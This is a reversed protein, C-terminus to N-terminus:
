EEIFGGSQHSWLKAYAGKKKLLQQHSGDEVIKGDDLVIIRDMKQITSLRHAIVITTKDQMLNWLADQILIESESDLASTAEDLLLIPADKIIARAIAIRQRQGGSLKVGREGVLTGYKKPLKDIFEHANALKAAKIIQEKTYNSKGYGINEEISRHFLLPEQPVYAIHSRLDDQTTDAISKGDILISGSDLDMYRLLLRTLTTKGSGSHGVLGVKSGPKIDLNFNTFLSDEEGGHTFVIDSFNISGENVKLLSPKLPDKIDPETHLTQIGDHADGIARNYQRLAGSSLEWLRQTIDGTYAVLLFVLGIDANHNVVMIVAVILATVSIFNTITAAATDRWTTAWMVQMTSQRLKETSEEFRTEEKQRASFSKVAMINAISDALKGTVKNQASAEVATLKRVKKSLLLAFIIFIVSFIWFSAVFAPARTILVASMFTFGIILTYAQFLFVDQLRVYAGVFKNTQSVLSGGFRNAHYDSSLMMFKNFMRAYIDKTVHGELRWVLIIVIRWLLVGGLMLVAGYLLIDTSFSAWPDGTTFQSKSLRNLIDAVIIPPVFRLFINAFPITILLAIVYKKHQWAYKWYTKLIQNTINM